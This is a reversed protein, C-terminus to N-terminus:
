YMSKIKELVASDLVDVPKNWYPKASLLEEAKLQTGGKNIRAFINQADLQSANRLRIIGIRADAFIKEARDITDLSKCIEDWEVSIKEEFKKRNVIDFNNEIFYDIYFDKTLTENEEELKKLLGLIFTRLLKPDIKSNNAAPAYAIRSFCDRFDFVQEWRSGDEKNPHVMLILDLLTTLGLRQQLSNFSNEEIEDFDPEQEEYEKDIKNELVSDEDNNEEKQLYKEVKGWYSKKVDSEITNKTFGIYSKAWEYLEVPNNRMITLAYRRQRGDLLWSVRQEQNVIVVGIPYDQFVSICLEFNQKNGWTAKRQFRPLRLKSEELFSILSMPEINYSM